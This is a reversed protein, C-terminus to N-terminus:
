GNVFEGVHRALNGWTLVGKGNPKGGSVEGVFNKGGPMAILAKGTMVDAYDQTTGTGTCVECTNECNQKVFGSWACMGQEKLTTCISKKHLDKCDAAAKKTVWKRQQMGSNSKACSCCPRADATCKGAAVYAACDLATKQPFEQWDICEITNTRIATQAKTCHYMDAAQRQDLLTFGTRNGLASRPPCNPECNIPTIVPKSKDKAFDWAGYQMISSYDYPMSM